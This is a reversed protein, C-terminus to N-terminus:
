LLRMYVYQVLSPDSGQFLNLTVISETKLKALRYTIAKKSLKFTEEM